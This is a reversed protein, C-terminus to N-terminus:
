CSKNVIIISNSKFVLNFGNNNVQLRDGSTVCISLFVCHVCLLHSRLFPVVCLQAVCHNECHMHSRLHGLWNSMMNIVNTVCQPRLALFCFFFVFMEPLPAACASSLSTLKSLCYPWLANSSLPRCSWIRKPKLDSEPHSSTNPVHNHHHLNFPWHPDECPCLYLCACMHVTHSLSYVYPLGARWLLVGLVGPTFCVCVCVCMCDACVSVCVRMDSSLCVCVCVSVAHHHIVRVDQVFASCGTHAWQLM